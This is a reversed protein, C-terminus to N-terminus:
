SSANTQWGGPNEIFFSIKAEILWNGEDDQSKRTIRMKELIASANWTKKPTVVSSSIEEAVLTGGLGRLSIYSFIDVMLQTSDTAIWSGTYNYTSDGDLIKANPDRAIGDSTRHKTINMNINLLDSSAKYQPLEIDYSSPTPGGTPTADTEPDYTQEWGVFKM